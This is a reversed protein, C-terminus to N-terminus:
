IQRRRGVSRDRDSGIEGEALPRPHEAVGLHGGREEVPERMVAVPTPGKPRVPNLKAISRAAPSEFSSLGHGFVAGVTELELTLDCPLKEGALRKV